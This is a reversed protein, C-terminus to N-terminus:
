LDVSYDSIAFAPRNAVPERRVIAKGEGAGIMLYQDADCVHSFMNKDPVDRFRADGGLQVRRYNYGGAYGKRLVRCDPHILMGATGDIMRTMPVRVAEIRLTPDNTKAPEAVLGGARLIDFVTREDAGRANGAPDGTISGIKFQGYQQAIHRKVEEAFRTIGMNDTVVESRKRWQGNPMQQGFVAAPTLGFDMGIHLLLRPNAEFSQCHVSDRYEPYVPKGDLVFGYEADVYVKIWEATKNASAKLYYGPDLNQLNEAKPTRGGPQRFWEFLRQDARLSGVDRLEAELALLMEVDEPSPEEAMRYWWHDSDPPNTDMLIQPDTCGGEERRPFRGVRGTLGDLIAKPVERAENIWADSLELSLLKRVDDPRDLAIFIVEWDIKQAADVIHHTPPGSERYNGYSAPIWQHWTKITTTKLEPYTNRIVATRRRIWGDRQRKQKQLARVLKMVCCVSKGSGIPGMIGAVFADSKIFAKGVPGPPRYHIENSTAQVETM